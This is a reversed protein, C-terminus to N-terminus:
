PAMEALVLQGDSNRDYKQFIPAYAALWEELEITKSQNRDMVKLLSDARMEEASLSANADLDAMEFFKQWYADYDQRTVGKNKNDTRMIHLLYKWCPTDMSQAPKGAPLGLERLLHPTIVHLAGERVPHITDTNYALFRLPDRELLKQWNPWHDILQFGREKAVDRYMQNYTELNPRSTRTHGVPVNMVQLIIETDPNAKLIREILQNLNNRAHGVSTKRRAVADNVAFEIFVTDPEHKLVKEDLSKVGWDSNAGGQAGNIVKSQGPYTQELVTAFQDVWAGVATLSTGFTVITQKKGADLHQVFRPKHEGRGHEDAQLSCPMLTCICASLTAIASLVPSSTKM